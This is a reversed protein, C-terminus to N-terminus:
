IQEIHENVNILLWKNPSALIYKETNIDDSYAWKPTFMFSQNKVSIYQM